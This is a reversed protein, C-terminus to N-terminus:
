TISHGLVRPREGGLVVPIASCVFEVLSLSSRGFIISDLLKGPMQPTLIMWLSACPV